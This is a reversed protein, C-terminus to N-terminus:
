EDYDICARNQMVAGVFASVKKHEPHVQYAALADESQFLSNLIVDKNGSPLTHIYVRLEVIGEICQPLAELSEKIKQANEKKESETFGEQHNWAVIHRVM